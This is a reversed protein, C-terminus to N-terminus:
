FSVTSFVPIQSNTSAIHSDFILEAQAVLQEQTFSQIKSGDKYCELATTEPTTGPIRHNTLAKKTYLMNEKFKTTGRITKHGTHMLTKLAPFEECAFEDGPYFSSLEPILSHILNARKDSNDNLTTPSFLLISAGSEKLASAASEISDSEDITVVTLGAKM